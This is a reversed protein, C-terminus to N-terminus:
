SRSSLERRLRQIAEAVRELRHALEQDTKAVPTASLADRFRELHALAQARGGVRLLARALGYHAEAYDPANRLAARFGAIAVEVDGQRLALEALNTQAETQEPDIRLAEDFADRASELEGAEALLSGLNTWASAFEPDRELARRYCAAAEEREFAREHERARLFWGYATAEDRQAAGAVWPLAVVDAVQAQLSAVDFDLLLQGTTAEYTQPGDEVLVRDHDCRVRMSALPDNPLSMRLADLSRRVRQLPLGADLLGKAVKISVLDRFRYFARGGQRVSPQIFGTQSWYRLKSEPMEFLRAVDAASFLQQRDQLDNPDRAQGLAPTLDNM